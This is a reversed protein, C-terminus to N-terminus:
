PLEYVRVEGTELVEIVTNVLDLPPNTALIARLAREMAAIQEARPVNPIVIAGAHIGERHLMPAFDRWNNTVLTLNEDRAYRLLESDEKSKWKRYQVHYAVYGLRNAVEVLAPSLCEDILFQIM